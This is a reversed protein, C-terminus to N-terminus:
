LSWLFFNVSNSRFTFFLSYFITFKVFYNSFFISYFVLDFRRVMSWTTSIFFSICCSLLTVSVKFISTLPKDYFVYPRSLCTDKTTSHELSRLFLNLYCSLWIAYITSSIFILNLSSSVIFSVIGLESSLFFSSLKLYLLYLKREEIIVPNPGNLGDLMTLCFLLLSYVTSSPIFFNDALTALQISRIFLISSSFFFSSEKWDLRKGLISLSFM